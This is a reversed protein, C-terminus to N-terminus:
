YEKYIEELIIRECNKDSEELIEGIKLNFLKAIKEIVSDIKKNNKLVLTIKLIKM